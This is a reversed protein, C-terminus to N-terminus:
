HEPCGTAAGHDGHEGGRANLARIEFPVTVAGAAEFHLLMELREGEVLPTTLGMIMLHYGGPALSVSGGAPIELGGELQRMTMTGDVHAMEHIQVERGVPATIATLRDPTAGHNAVTFYGGGVPANPLTARSFAGSIELDGAVVTPAAADHAAGHDHECHAFAPPALFLAPALLVTGLVLPLLPNKRIM